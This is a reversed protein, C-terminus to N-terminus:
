MTNNAVNDIMETNYTLPPKNSDTALSSPIGSPTTEQNTANSGIVFIFVQDMDKFLDKVLFKNQLDNHLSDKIYLVSLKSGYLELIDRELLQRLQLISINVDNVFCIFRFIGYAEVQLRMGSM